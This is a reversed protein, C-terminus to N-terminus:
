AEDVRGLRLSLPWVIQRASGWDRLLRGRLAPLPDDGTAARYRKVASWTAFYGMLQDLTWTAQMVMPPADIRPFPFPLDRYGTEVFRREPPWYPALLDSYFLEIHADLAPSISLREYCWLALVGGPRLVRRVERYFADLDFWHAAQAVSVLDVSASDLGSSEAQATRYEVGPHAQAHAIQEASADTAIVEHFHQVLGIAAQGNGTACDWARQRAPALTALQEFLADPYTPRCAAYGAADRSFHDKFTSM